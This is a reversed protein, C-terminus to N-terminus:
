VRDQRVDLAGNRNELGVGPVERGPLGTAVVVQELLYRRSSYDTTNNNIHLEQTVNLPGARLTHHVGSQSQSVGGGAHVLRVIVRLLLHQEREISLGEGFLLVERLRQLQRPLKAVTHTMTHTGHTGTAHTHLGGTLGIVIGGRKGEMVTTKEEAM